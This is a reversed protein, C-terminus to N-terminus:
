KESSLFYSCFHNYITYSESGKYNYLSNNEVFYRLQCPSATLYVYIFTLGVRTLVITCTNIADITIWTGTDRSNRTIVAFYVDIFTSWTWTKMSSLANIMDVPLTLTTATICLKLHTVLATQVIQVLSQVNKGGLM